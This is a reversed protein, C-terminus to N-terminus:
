VRVPFSLSNNLLETTDSEKGGWPSCAALWSERDRKIEWLRGLNMEKSDTIGDLLGVSISPDTFTYTISYISIYLQFKKTQTQPAQKSQYQM